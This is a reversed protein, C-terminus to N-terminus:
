ISKICSVQVFIDFKSCISKQTKAWLLNSTNTFPYQPGLRIKINCPLLWIHLFYNLLNLYSDSKTKKEHKTTIFIAIRKKKSSYLTLTKPGAPTRKLPTRPSRSKLNVPRTKFALQRKKLSVSRVKTFNSTFNWIRKKDSRLLLTFSTM